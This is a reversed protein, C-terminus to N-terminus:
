GGSGVYNDDGQTTQIYITNRGLEFSGGAMNSTMQINIQRAEFAKNITGQDPTFDIDFTRPTARPYDRGTFTMTMDGTQNLDLEIRDIQVATDQNSPLGVSNPACLSIEASKIYKPISLVQFGNDEDVGYEHQWLTYTGTLNLTNGFMTPYTFINSTLGASRPLETSYWSGERVNLIIAHTCEVADGFPFFWWIEGWQPMTMSWIKQRYQRNYNEYFWLLNMNNPLERIVGNYSQFRGNAPWYYIGDYEAVASSSLLGAYGPVDSFSFVQGSAISSFNARVVKDLAFFIAAPQYTGAARDPVAAIVKQASIRASGSGTGVFNTLDGPISWKVQGNNGYTFLFPYLGLIGGSTAQTVGETGATFKGVMAGSIAIQTVTAFFNTSIVSTTGNLHLTENITAGNVDTGTVIATQTTDGNNASVVVVQRPTDMTAVGATAFSGNIVANGAGAITQSLSISTPLTQDTVPILISTATIDGYYVTTEVSSDIDMNPATHAVIANFGGPNYDMASIQWINDPSVELAAPTRTNVGSSFGNYNFPVTYLESASGGYITNFADQSYIYTQGRIIEDFGGTIQRYGGMSKPLSRYFRTHQSDVWNQGEAITGDRKVGPACIFQVSSSTTSM